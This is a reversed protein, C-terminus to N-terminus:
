RPEPPPVALSLGLWRVRDVADDVCGVLLSVDACWRDARRAFARAAESEWHTAAAVSACRCGAAALLDRADALRRLAIETAVLLDFSTVADLTSPM